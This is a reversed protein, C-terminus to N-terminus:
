EASSARGDTAITAEIWPVFDSIRVFYEDAGYLGEPRGYTRQASGVGAVALGRPTMLLAPGGSDGPGSIGEWALARGTGSRPDDFQWVLWGDRAADVRNEAVRFLGDEPVLGRLGDGTGGWGPLLVTRGLEDSTRYLPIPAVSAVPEALRLLALDVAGGDTGPHRVVAVVLAPGGGIEFRHGDGEVAELFAADETCHAATVGWRPAILTAICDRHGQKTRYLSFLAPFRTADAQYAEPGHDHRVVIASADGALGLGLLAGLALGVATGLRTM